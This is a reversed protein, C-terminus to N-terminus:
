PAQAGPRSNNDGYEPRGSEGYGYYYNGAPTSAVSQNLVLSVATHGGLYSIADLLTQHSTAGARVVVVIQGAVQTLAHSETTLLLPPSDFIVIRQDDNRGITRVVEAMRASALLETAQESRTGAPLLSLNPVDTPLIVSEVQLRPDRLLDLLGPMESLGFLRSIHPKAVDADVLLVHVDKEISMSLALNIATFTKGEGPMASALMILHGDPLRQAGRGIANAVLPRKIQRYQRALQREQHEPALLGAARLAPFDISVTVAPAATVIGRHSVTDGPRSAGGADPHLVRGAPAPAAPQAGAARHSAEQMKKLAQEVLSM